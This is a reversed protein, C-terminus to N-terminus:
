GYLREGGLYTIVDGSAREEQSDGQNRERTAIIRGTSFAPVQWISDLGDKVYGRCCSCVREQTKKKVSASRERKGRSAEKGERRLRPASRQTGTGSKSM